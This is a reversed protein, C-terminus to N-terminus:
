RSGLKVMQRWKSLLYSYSGFRGTDDDAAAAAATQQNMAFSSTTWTTLSESTNILNHNSNFLACTHAATYKKSQLNM